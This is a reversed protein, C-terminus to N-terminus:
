IVEEKTRSMTCVLPSYRRLRHSRNFSTKPVLNVFHKTHPRGERWCLASRGDAPRPNHAAQVRRDILQTLLVLQTLVRAASVANGIVGRQASDSMQTRRSAKPVSVDPDYGHDSRGLPLPPSRASVRRPAVRLDYRNRRCHSRAAASESWPWRTLCGFGIRSEPEASYCRCNMM